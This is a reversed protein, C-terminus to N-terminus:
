GLMWRLRRPGQRESLRVRCDRETRPAGAARCGTGERMLSGPVSHGLETGQSETSTEGERGGSGSKAQWHRVEQPGLLGTIRTGRTGILRAEWGLKAVNPVPRLADGEGAGLSHWSGM